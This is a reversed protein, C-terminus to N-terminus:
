IKDAALRERITELGRIRTEIIGLRERYAALIIKWHDLLQDDSM